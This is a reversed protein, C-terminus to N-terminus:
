LDCYLLRQIRYLKLYCMNLFLVPFHLCKQNTKWNLVKLFSYPKTGRVVAEIQGESMKRWLHLFVRYYITNEEPIVLQIPAIRLGQRGQPMRGMDLPPFLLPKTNGKEALPSLIDTKPPCSLPSFYEFVPM